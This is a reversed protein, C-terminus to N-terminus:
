DTFLSILPKTIAIIRQKGDLELNLVRRNGRLSQLVHYKKPHRM